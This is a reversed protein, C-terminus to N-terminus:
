KEDPFGEVAVTAFDCNQQGRNFQVRKIAPLKEVKVSEWRMVIQENAFAPTAVPLGLAQIAAPTFPISDLGNVTIVNAKGSTFLIEIDPAQYKYITGYKSKQMEKPKGLLKTVEAPTKAVVARVDFILPVAAAAGQSLKALSEETTRGAMAERWASLTREPELKELLVTKENAVFRQFGTYGGLGNKSNVWGYAVNGTKESWAYGVDKFQASEPDKLQKAVARKARPVV